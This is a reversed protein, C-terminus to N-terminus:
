YAITFRKKVHKPHEVEDVLAIAYDDYSIRSKGAKDTVLQDGGLRFKGTREGPGIEAAPSFFTWDLAHEGRLRDLSATGEEIIKKVADPLQLTDKLMKGPAVELSGAGGVMLYRKVGARKVAAVIDNSLGPAFPLSSIVLDHGELLKAMASVDSADGKKAIVKAGKSIKEPNRAIATVTHGRSVLEGLVKTGINGSAGVLAVKM